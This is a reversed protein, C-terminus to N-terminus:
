EIGGNDVIEFNEKGGLSQINFQKETDNYRLTAKQYRFIQTVDSQKYEKYHTKYKILYQVDYCDKGNMKVSEVTPTGSVSSKSKSDRVSQIFTDFDQYEVNSKTDTFYTSFTQKTTEDYTSYSGTYSSVDGYFHSLFAEVESKGKIGSFDLEIISAYSEPDYESADFSLGDITHQKTEIISKDALTKKLRVTMGQNWIQNKVEYEGNSLQGIKKDNIFVEADSINTKVKFSLKRFDFDVQNMKILGTHHAQILDVTTENQEGLLEGKITYETPTLPGWVTQFLDQDTREKEQDDLFLQMDKQNATITIYGPKLEWQYADFLLFKRGSRLLSLEGTQKNGTELQLILKSFAEKHENHEYYAFYRKLENKTIQYNPDTSVTLKEMQNIDKNRVIEIMRKLQNEKSYYNKATFYSGIVLCFLIAIIALFVRQSKKMRVKNKSTKSGESQLSNTHSVSEGCAPCFRAEEEILSGCSCVIKSDEEVKQSVEFQLGCNECYVADEYNEHQCSQCSKM